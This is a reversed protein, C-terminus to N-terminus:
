AGDGAGAAAVVRVIASEVAAGAEDWSRGVVSASAAAAGAAIDGAPRSVLRGLADALGYPTPEAYMVDDNALVVRNHEANNVVPICGSALMEHPVLSVNTASLVLGAICRNYLKDLQTPTLVGHDTVPFPMPGVPDCFFHIDVDPHRAAFAELALVGLDFARRPTIERAFFCVGTRAPAGPGTALRYRDLDCGFEFHDATMGYRSGLESALWPGATVAHFGFRYTAEALLAESGAPYFMPELDQVVYIRVGKALSALAAYATPWSTAVIAHADDIGNAASRVDARVWPWWQRLVAEQDALSGGWRDYFYLICRHGAQELSGILRFLTTHGGSGGDPPTIIWALTLPEGPLAPLPGPMHGGAAQVEAAALVDRRDVALGEGAPAVRAAAKRLARAAVVAPGDTRWLRRAQQLRRRLDSV